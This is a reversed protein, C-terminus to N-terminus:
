ASWISLRHEPVGAHVALEQVEAYTGVAIRPLEVSRMSDPVFQQWTGDAIHPEVDPMRVKVFQNYVVDDLDEGRNTQPEWTIVDVRARQEYLRIEAKLLRAAAPAWVHCVPQEHIANLIHINFQAMKEYIESLAELGRELIAESSLEISNVTKM